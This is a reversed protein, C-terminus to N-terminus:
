EDTSSPSKDASSGRAARRMDELLQCSIIHEIQMGMEFLGHEVSRNWRVVAFALIGAFEIRVSNEVDLKAASRIRLGSRSVDLVDVSFPEGGGSGLLTLTAKENAKYRPEKRRDHQGPEAPAESISIDNNAMTM